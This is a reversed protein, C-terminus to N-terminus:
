FISHHVKNGKKPIVIVHLDIALTSVSRHFYWRAVAGAIVMQQCALIFESTWVLGILYVWWMYRVWTADTFEM